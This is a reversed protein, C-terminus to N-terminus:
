NALQSYDCQIIVREKIQIDQRFGKFAEFKKPFCGSYNTRSIEELRNNLTIVSISRKGVSQSDEIMARVWSWFSGDGYDTEVTLERPTAGVVAGFVTGIGGIELM